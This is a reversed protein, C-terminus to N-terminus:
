QDSRPFRGKYSFLTFFPESYCALRLTAPSTPLLSLLSALFALSPSRLHHLTLGYLTTTSDCAAAAMAGALMLHHLESGGYLWAVTRMVLPTGPFFAWEYEYTYQLNTHALHTFHFADWRLLPLPWTPSRVLTPSADFLPLYSSLYVLLLVLIRSAISLKLLVSLHHREVSEAMRPQPM